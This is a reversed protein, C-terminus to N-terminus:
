IRIGEICERTSKLVPQNAVLEELKFPFRLSWNNDNITGPTNIKYRGPDGPFFGSMNLIDQLPNIVFISNGQYIKQLMHQYTEKSLNYNAENEWGLFQHWFANREDQSATKWWLLMPDADHVSTTVVSILDQNEPSVFPQGGEEWKRTWRLVRLGPIGLEELIRPVCDPVVGLDEACPLMDTARIMVTLLEHGNNAWFGEQSALIEKEWHRLLDQRDQPLNQFYPEQWYYWTFALQEHNGLVPTLIKNAILEEASFGNDNFRSAPITLQPDFFGMVASKGVPITWIRFFGLVHDIRYLDFFNEAYKLREIWFSYDNQALNDWDYVPFGWRQGKTSFMDPPAGAIYGPKFYEPHSWTETSDASILIPIDGKLYVNNQAAYKHVASFQDKLVMQLFQYYLIEQQNETRLLQLQKPDRERVKKPWDKWHKNQYKSRLVRFLAYDAIWDEHDTIFQQLLDLTKQPAKEFILKLIQHKYKRVASYDIADTHGLHQRATQVAKSIAPDKSLKIKKLLSDISIYVPDLAMSSLANYPSTEKDGIDNIPLVQIIKQGTKKCWDILLRLDEVDGIGISQETRLSFIPIAVGASPNTGIKKWSKGTLKTLLDNNM